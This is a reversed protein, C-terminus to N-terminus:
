TRLEVAGTRHTPWVGAGLFLAREESVPEILVARQDNVPYNNSTVVIRQPRVPLVTLLTM